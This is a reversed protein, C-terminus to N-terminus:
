EKKLPPNPKSKKVDDEKKLGNVEFVVDTIIKLDDKNIEDIEKDTADPIARKIANKVMFTIAKFIEEKQHYEGIDAEEGLTMPRLEMEIGNSLTVMKGKSRLDSLKSM